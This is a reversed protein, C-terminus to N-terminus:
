LNQYIKGFRQRLGALGQMGGTHIAVIKEGRKFFGKKALDFIGYFMKGTYIPEIPINNIGKFRKVFNILEENMKAYGGFHYDMNINWNTNYKSSSDILFNNINDNLFSADKLAAFGLAKESAIRSQDFADVEWGVAAAYVANRGEGEGPLLITGPPLKDIQSAFFRNPQIGYVFHDTDYRSDWFTDM